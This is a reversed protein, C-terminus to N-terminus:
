FSCDFGAKVWAQMGGKINFAKLSREKELLSAIISARNGSQCLVAIPQDDPIENLVQPAKILDM